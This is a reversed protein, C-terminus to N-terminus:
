KSSMRSKVNKSLEKYETRYLEFNELERTSPKGDDWLLSNTESVILSIDKLAPHWQDYHVEMIKVGKVM